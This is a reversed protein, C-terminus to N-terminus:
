VSTSHHRAPGCWQTIATRASDPDDGAWAAYGDPRVLTLAPFAPDATEAGAVRGDWGTTDAGAHRVLLFRGHRLAEHLRGTSLRADPVRRGEWDHAHRPDRPRYSISLGAVRRRMPIALAGRALFPRVARVPPPAVSVRQLLDTLRLAAAGVPHRETHYSDLLWPAAHGHVAAAIKWGLNM